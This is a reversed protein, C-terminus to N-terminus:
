RVRISEILADDLIWRVGNYEVQKGKPTALVLTSELM